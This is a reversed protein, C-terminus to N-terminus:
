QVWRREESSGAMSDMNSKNPSNRNKQKKRDRPTVYPPPPPPVIIAGQMSADVAVGRTSEAAVQEDMNLKRIVSTQPHDTGAEDVKGKLPSKATDKLDDDADRDVEEGLGAEESSRKKAGNNRGRGGGHARGRGRAFNGRNWSPDRNQSEPMPRRTAKMWEGYEVEEPSHVGDGCEEMSHGLIGCVECFFGIKEYKVPLLIRGEGKINLPAFRVLPDVLKIKARVRVYNGEFVRNPNMEVSKVQGVRRALQDVIMEKRYLEPTDHIQAWVHVRDLQVLDPKGKGDYEEIAVMLGRYIWPGQHMVRNWDGLCFLQIIFLNDDAERIEPENALRWAFIMTNKFSEVSFFKTTNVRAVALWRADKSLEAIEEDGVIVDDLETEKLKMNRMAAELDIPTKGKRRGSSTSGGGNSPTAGAM